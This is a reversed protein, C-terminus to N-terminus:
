SSFSSLSRSSFLSSSPVPSSGFYVVVLLVKQTLLKYDLLLFEEVSHCSFRFVKNSYNDAIITPSESGSVVTARACNSMLLTILRPGFDFAVCDPSGASISDTTFDTVSVDVFFGSLPYRIIKDSVVQCAV